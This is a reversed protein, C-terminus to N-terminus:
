FETGFISHLVRDGVEIGLKESVGGGIELVARVDGVSAIPELSQPVTRRQIKEITGDARIFLMDLPILTNKMWMAVRAPHGYDFLMGADEALTERFMLGQARQADTLAIEIQFHHQQGSSEIALEGQAFENAQGVTMPVFLLLAFLWVAKVARVGM